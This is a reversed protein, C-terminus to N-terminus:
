KERKHLEFYRFYNTSILCGLLIIGLPGYQTNILGVRFTIGEITNYQINYKM